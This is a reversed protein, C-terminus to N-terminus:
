SEGDNEWIRLFLARARVHMIEALCEEDSAKCTRDRERLWARQESLLAPGRLLKLRAFADAIEQDLMRLVESSCIAREVSSVAKACDFSPGVARNAMAAYEQITKPIAEHVFRPNRWLYFDVGNGAADRMSADAGADLLMKIVTLGANEAAYMLATREGRQIFYGFTNLSKTRANVKAGAELLKRVSDPRNFHAAVMLPTKDFANVIDPAPNESLLRDLERPHGVADSLVTNDDRPLGYDKIEFQGFTAPILIYQALLGHLVREAAPRADKSALGFHQVLYKSYSEVATPMLSQLTQYERRTWPGQQSWQGLFRNLRDGYVHYEGYAPSARSLATEQRDAIAWPRTAATREGMLAATLHRTEAHMTGSDPGPNGIVRVVRIFAEVDPLDDFEGFLEDLPKQSVICVREVIGSARLRFVTYSIPSQVEHNNAGLVFYYRREFAFLKPQAWVNGTFVDKGDANVAGPYFRHGTLVPLKAPPYQDEKSEDFQVWQERVQDFAAPSPFVHGYHWDGSWNFENSRIVVTQKRGTGDLDLDGRLYRAPRRNEVPPIETLPMDVATFAETITADGDLVFESGRHATRMAALARSCLKPEANLELVPDAPSKTAGFEGATAGLVAAPASLALIAAAPVFLKRM